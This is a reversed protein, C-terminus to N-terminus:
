ICQTKFTIFAEKGMSAREKEKYETANIFNLLWGDVLHSCNICNKMRGSALHERNFGGLLGNCAETRCTVQSLQWKGTDKRSRPSVAKQTCAKQRRDRM